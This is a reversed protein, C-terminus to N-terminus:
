PFNSFISFSALLPMLSFFNRHFLSIIASLADRPFYNHRANRHGIHFSKTFRDIIRSSYNELKQNSSALKRKKEDGFQALTLDKLRYDGRLVKLWGNLVLRYIHENSYLDV